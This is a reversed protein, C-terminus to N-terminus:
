TLVSPALIYYFIICLLIYICQELTHHLKEKPTYKDKKNASRLLFSDVQQSSLNKLHEHEHRSSASPSVKREHPERIVSPRQLDRPTAGKRQQLKPKSKFPLAKQLEKPIRLPNFRRPKRVVPQFSVSLNYTVATWSTNTNCDDNM